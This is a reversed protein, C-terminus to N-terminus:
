HARKERRKRVRWDSWVVALGILILIGAAAYVGWIGDVDM